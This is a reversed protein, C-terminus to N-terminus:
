EEWEIFITRYGYKNAVAAEVTDYITPQLLGTRSDLNIWGSKKTPVNILEGNKKNRGFGEISWTTLKTENEIYGKIPYDGRGVGLIEVKRGDRTQVPKTLDLNNLKPMKSNGCDPCNILGIHYTKECKPCWNSPMIM